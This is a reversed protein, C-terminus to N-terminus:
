HPQCAGRFEIMMQVPGCFYFTCDAPTLPQLVKALTSLGIHGTSHHSQWSVVSVHM